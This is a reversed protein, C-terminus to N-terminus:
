RSLLGRLKGKLSLFALRFYGISSGYTLFWNFHKRLNRSPVFSIQWGIYKLIVLLPKILVARIGTVLFLPKARLIKLIAEIQRKKSLEYKGSVWGISLLSPRLYGSKLLAVAAKDVLEGGPIEGLVTKYIESRPVSLDQTLTYKRISLDSEPNKPLTVEPELIQYPWRYAGIHGYSDAHRLIEQRPPIQFGTDLRLSPGFPNELGVFKSGGTFDEIWFKSFKNSNILFPGGPIQCPVLPAGEVVCITNTSKAVPIMAHAEPFHSLPVMITKDAHHLQIRSLLDRLFWFESDDSAVKVHDDNTFLLTQDHGAELVRKSAEAWDSFSELRFPHLKYEFELTGLFGFIRDQAWSTTEDFALYFDANKIGLNRLGDLTSAAVSVRDRNRLNRTGVHQHLRKETILTSFILHM